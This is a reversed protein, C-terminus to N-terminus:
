LMISRITIPCTTPGAAMAPSVMVKGTIFMAVAMPTSTPPPEAARTDINSPLLLWEAACFTRPLATERVASLPAM